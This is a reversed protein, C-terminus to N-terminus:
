SDLLGGITAPQASMMGSPMTWAASPLAGLASASASTRRRTSSRAIRATISASVFSPFVTLSTLASFHPHSTVDIVGAPSVRCMSTFPRWMSPSVTTTVAFSTSSASFWPSFNM